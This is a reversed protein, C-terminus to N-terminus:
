KLADMAAQEITKRAAKLSGTNTGVLSNYTASVVGHKVIPNKEDQPNRYQKTRDVTYEVSDRGAMAIKLTTQELGKNKAMAAVSMDGFALAGAAIFNGNHESVRKVTEISLDEPLTSAFIDDAATATGTKKDLTIGSKMKESMDIVVQKVAPATSEKKDSM